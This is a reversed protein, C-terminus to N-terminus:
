APWVARSVTARVRGTRRDHVPQGEPRGGSCMQDWLWSACRAAAFPGRFTAQLIEGNEYALRDVEKLKLKFM